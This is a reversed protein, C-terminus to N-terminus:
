QPWQRYSRARQPNRPCARQAFLVVSPVTGSTQGLHRAKEAGSRRSSIRRHPLLRQSSTRRASCLGTVSRARAGGCLLSYYRLFNVALLTLSAHQRCLHQVRCAVRDRGPTSPTNEARHAPTPLRQATWARRSGSFADPDLTLRGLVTMMLYSRCRLSIEISVQQGSSSPRCKSSFVPTM